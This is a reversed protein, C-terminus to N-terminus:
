SRLANPHDIESPSVNSQALGRDPAIVAVLVLAGALTIQWGFSCM